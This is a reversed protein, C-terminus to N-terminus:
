RHNEGVRHCHQLRSPIWIRNFQYPSLLNNSSLYFSLQKQVISELVKSFIPLISIPRYHSLSSPKAIKPLPLVHAKKWLSPFSSSELSFNIIHCLIPALEEMIFTFMQLQLNDCGVAKTSISQFSKKIDRKAIPTFSFSTNLPKSLNSLHNLTSLKITADLTVPPKAFHANLADINASVTNEEVAKGIGLSKLFRWVQTSDLNTVSNHIHRRKADRCLRSCRNRLKKYVAWNEESSNKRYRLKAKNRRSMFLKIEDSLWPAPM